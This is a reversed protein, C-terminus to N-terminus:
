LEGEEMLRIVTSISVGYDIEEADFGVTDTMAFFGVRGDFPSEKRPKPKAM